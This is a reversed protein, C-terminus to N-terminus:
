AKRPTQRRSRRRRSTRRNNSESENDSLFRSEDQDDPRPKGMNIPGNKKTPATSALKSMAASIFYVTAIGAVALLAPIFYPQGFFWVMALGFLLTAIIQASETSLLRSSGALLVIVIVIGVTWAAFVDSIGYM